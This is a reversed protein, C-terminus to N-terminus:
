PAAGVGANQALWAAATADEDPRLEIQLFGKWAKNRRHAWMSYWYASWFTTERASVADLELFYGDVKYRQKALDHDLADLDAPTPAAPRPAQVFSVVDIDGPARAELTEIDEMFSGDLWQFGEVYGNAHLAARYALFGQLVECRRPSTAFRAVLDTLLVPYPARSASVPNAEDIPPLVGEATWAPIAVTPM